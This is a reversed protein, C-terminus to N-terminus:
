AFGIRKKVEIATECAFECLESLSKGIPCVTSEPSRLERQCLWTEAAVAPSETVVSISREALLASIDGTLAFTFVLRGYLALADIDPLADRFGPCLVPAIDALAAASLAASTLLSGSRERAAVLPLQARTLAVDHRMLADEETDTLGATIRGNVVALPVPVCGQSWITEQASRLMEASRPHTLRAFSGTEIAVVPSGANLAASVPATASFYKKM